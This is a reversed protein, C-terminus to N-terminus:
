IVRQLIEHWVIQYRQLQQFPFAPKKAEVAATSAAHDITCVNTFHIHQVIEKTIPLYNTTNPLRYPM